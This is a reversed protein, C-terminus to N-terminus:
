RRGIGADILVPKFGQSGGNVMQKECEVLNAESIDVGYMENFAETFCVLNAGGGPGWEIMRGTEAGSACVACLERWM